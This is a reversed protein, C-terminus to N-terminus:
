FPPTYIFTWVREINEDEVEGDPPPSAKLGYSVSYFRPPRPLRGKVL